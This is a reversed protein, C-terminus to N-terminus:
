IIVYVRKETLCLDRRGRSLDMVLPTYYALLFSIRLSLASLDAAPEKQIELVSM